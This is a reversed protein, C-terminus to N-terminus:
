GRGGMSLALFVGIKALTALPGALRWGEFYGCRRMLVFFRRRLRREINKVTWESLALQAVAEEISRGERFRVAFVREEDVSLAAVFRQVQGALEQSGLADDPAVVEVVAASPSAFENAADEVLPVFVKAQRRFEDVVYNRAITFLYNRYPRLGDYGLRAREAFARTFVEQVADDLAWPERFGAFGVSRGQSEIAFGRGLFGFLPPAYERYVQALAAKEGRRFAARLEPDEVLRM